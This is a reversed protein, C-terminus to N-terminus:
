VQKARDTYPPWGLPKGALLHLHLHFVTQGASENCNMVVRYGEEAFGQEAALKKAVYFLHGMLERDDIEVDNITAIQRKPIILLHVPAQPNIDKFALSEDDEYVIDAPIERRIIKDFLTDAM